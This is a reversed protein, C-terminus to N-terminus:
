SGPTIRISDDVTVIRVDPRHARVLAEVDALSPYAPDVGFCRADDIIVIHGPDPRSYIHGLEALIPTDRDGRATFGGSYHGDLWFLAPGTLKDLISPLLRSSDGLVLHVRPNGRFRERAQEHLRPSLEISYIDDVSRLMAEVMDGVHTGTEVLSRLRYEAAHRRLVRQKLSHPPPVPRGAADWQRIERADRQGIRWRHVFPGAPSRRIGTRVHDLVSM